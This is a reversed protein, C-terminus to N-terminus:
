MNNIVNRNQLINQYVYFTIKVIALQLLNKKKKRERICALKASAASVNFLLLSKAKSYPDDFLSQFFISYNTESSQLKKPKTVKSKSKSQCVTGVKITLQNRRTSLVLQSTENKWKKKMKKSNIFINEKLDKHWIEFRIKNISESSHYDSIQPFLFIISNM